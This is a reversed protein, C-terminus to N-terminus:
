LFFSGPPDKKEPGGLVWGRPTSSTCTRTATQILAVRPPLVIEPKVWRVLGSRGPHRTPM